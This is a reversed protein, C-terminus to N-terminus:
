TVAAIDAVLRGGPRIGHSSIPLVSRPMRSSSQLPAFSFLAYNAAKPFGELILRTVPLTSSPAPFALSGSRLNCTHLSKSEFSGSDSVAVRSLGGVWV